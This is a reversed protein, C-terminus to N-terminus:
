GSNRHFGAVLEVHSSWRFQDVVLVDGMDFGARILRAADRAFSVPNCSVHAIRSVDSSALEEIQAAAGARPPDLVVADFRSLERADLPNRFLDRRETSIPRLGQTSRRAKDLAPLLPAAGEVAHVRAARALPLAFTGCGAFLDAVTDAGAVIATVAERLASEGQPTAQLFAGPPLEVPIGDFQVLAARRTLPPEDNWCLRALDHRMAIETLRDLTDRTAPKANSVAVDLGSDTLTMMVQLAGKRSAGLLALEEAMPLAAALQPAVLHCHPVSVIVDSARGHFGALAGKKTRRAAFGARRRSHSPSTAPGHVQAAIGQAALARIVVDRKWGAVFDDSAHQLQCGGCGGAHPCPPRVRDSSPELIRLDRLTDGDATAEVVEGPLTAPAYLPGPAIGHGLHGLREIVYRTM